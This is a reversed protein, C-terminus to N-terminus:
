SGRGVMAPSNRGSGRDKGGRQWGAAATTMEDGCLRIRWIIVVDAIVPYPHNNDDNCCTAGNREDRDIVTRGAKDVVAVGNGDWWQRQDLAAFVSAGSSLSTLSLTSPITTTMTSTTRTAALATATATGGKGIVAVVKGDQRQTTTVARCLCFTSSSSLMSSSPCLITTTTMMTTAALAAVTAKVMGTVKDTATTTAMATATTMTTMM